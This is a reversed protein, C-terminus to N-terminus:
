VTLASPKMAVGDLSVKLLTTKRIVNVSSRTDVLVISLITDVCKMSIYLARNHARGESPLEDDSFDLCSGVTINEMLGDFQDVINDKTVHAVGM